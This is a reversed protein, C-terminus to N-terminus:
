FFFRGQIITNLVKEFVNNTIVGGYHPGDLQYTLTETKLCHTFCAGMLPKSHHVTDIM